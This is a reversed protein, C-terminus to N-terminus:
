ARKRSYFFAMLALVPVLGIVAATFDYAVQPFFLKLDLISAMNLFSFDRSWVAYITLLAIHIVAITFITDKLAGLISKWNIKM